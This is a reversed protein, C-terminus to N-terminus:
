SVRSSYTKRCTRQRTSRVTISIIQPPIFQINHQKCRATLELKLFRRTTTDVGIKRLEVLLAAKTRDKAITGAAVTDYRTLVRETKDMWFPDEYSSTFFMSQRAGISFNREYPVWHYRDEDYIHQGGM